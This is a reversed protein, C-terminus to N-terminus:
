RLRPHLTADVSSRPGQRRSQQYAAFLAANILWFVMGSQSLFFPYSFTIAIAGINYGVLITGWLWFENEDDQLFAMRLSWILAILLGLPYLVMAPVGGDFLWATWQIEAWLGMQRKDGFYTYAMGYRGLGAGLPYEPVYLGMTTELFHGRNSYYVDGAEAQVLTGWRNAIADGGLTVAWAFGGIAFGGVVLVLKTMRLLRGNAALVGAIAVLCALLMVANSRVQCLYLSVIGLFIGGISLARIVGRKASILFGAGLLVSYFAGTSAGGPTDTLGFPRFIRQGSAMEFQLSQNYADGMDGIVTSLAPQFRGPFYVQLVGFGASAANFLFLLALTRRFATADMKLRTVWLLPAMVAFEIGLQALAAMHSGTDPHFFGVSIIVMAALVYPLSPHRLSRGPVLVLMALSAGFSFIRFVVRLGALSEVLLALQSLIQVAIFAPVVLGSSWFNWRGPVRAPAPGSETGPAQAPVSAPAARTYRRRLVGPGQLQPGRM